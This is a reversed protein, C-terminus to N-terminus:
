SFVAILHLVSCGALERSNGLKFSLLIVKDQSSRARLVTWYSWFRVGQREEAQEERSLHSKNAETTAMHVQVDSHLQARQYDGTVGM